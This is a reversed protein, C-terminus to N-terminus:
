ERLHELLAAKTEPTLLTEERNAPHAIRLTVAGGAFRAVQAPTFAFRIYHVAPTSEERTLQQEHAENTVCSVAGAGM